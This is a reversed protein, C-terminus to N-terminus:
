SFADFQASIGQRSAGAGLLCALLLRAKHPPLIGSPILGRKILDIESGVFGYSNTFVSGCLVRTALIVPMQKALNELKPVIQMPVHGAGTASIVAGHFGAAAVRDLLGGDDGLGTQVVCVPRADTIAFTQISALAPVMRRRFQGETVTGIPGMGPSAFASLLGTDVKQVFCAAHVEDNLVVLTGVGRAKRSAAVTVAALLNASGDASPATAGRMAGTVVVAPREDSRNLALDLLFSTEDITDTGQVVVVGDAGANAADNIMGAVAAIQAFSLSAGPVLFPTVVTLDAITVLPPVQAVLDDGSISPTIGGSADPVMTITGGLVIITVSPKM